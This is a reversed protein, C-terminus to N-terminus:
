KKKAAVADDYLKQLDGRSTTWKNFPIKMQTLKEQLQVKTMEGNAKNNSKPVLTIKNAHEPKFDSEAVIEFTREAEEYSLVNTVRGSADRLILSNEKVQTKRFYLKGDEDIQPRTGVFQILNKLDTFDHYVFGMTNPSKSRIVVCQKATNFSKSTSANATM